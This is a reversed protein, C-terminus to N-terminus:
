KITQWCKKWDSQEGVDTKTFMDMVITVITGIFFLMVATLCRRIFKSIAEKNGKDDSSAVAKVLDITGVVILLIPAFLQVTNFVVKKLFVIITRLQWPCGEGNEADDVALGTGCLANSIKCNGDQCFQEVENGYGNCLQSIQNDTHITGEKIKIIRKNDNNKVFFVDACAASPFSNNGSSSMFETNGNSYQINWGSQMKSIALQNGSIKGKYICTYLAGPISIDDDITCSDYNGVGGCSVNLIPCSDSFDDTTIHLDSSFKVQYNSNTSEFQFEGNSYANVTITAISDGLSNIADYKCSNILRIDENSVLKQDNNTSKSSLPVSFLSLGDDIAASNSSEISYGGIGDLGYYIEAPCVIKNNKKDIFDKAVLKSNVKYQVSSQDKYDWSFSIEVSGKQNDVVDYTYTWDGREYICSARALETAEVNECFLFSAVLVLVLFVCHMKINEWSKM